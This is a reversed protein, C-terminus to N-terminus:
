QILHQFGNSLDGLNSRDDEGVVSIVFDPKFDHLVNKAIELSAVCLIAM